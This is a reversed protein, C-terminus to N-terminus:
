KQLFAYVRDKIDPAEDFVAHSYSDYIYKECCLKESIFHANEVPITRDNTDAIVFVPCKIETLRESVDFTFCARLMHTFRECDEATGLQELAPLFDRFMELYAESYVYKFFSRNLLVVNKEEALALWEEIAPSNNASFDCLTSCLVLKETLEPHNITMDQVIMGGQSVGYLAAKTVGLQTLASYIDEAMDHITVGPKLQKRRDFLYVTYGECFVSYAAAVDAGKGELGTLSVGSVIALVRDGRGFRIVNMCGDGVTMNFESVTAKLEEATM